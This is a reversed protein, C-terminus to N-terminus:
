RIRASDAFLDACSNFSRTGATLAGQQHTGCPESYSEHNQNMGLADWLIVAPPQLFISYIPLHSLVDTNRTSQYIKLESPSSIIM